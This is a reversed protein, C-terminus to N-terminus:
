SAALMETRVLAVMQGLTDRLIEVFKDRDGATVAPKLQENVMIRKGYPGSGYSLFLPVGGAVMKGTLNLFEDDFRMPIQGGVFVIRLGGKEYGPVTGMEPVLLIKSRDPRMGDSLAMLRWGCLWHRCTHPRSEYISCKANLTLHPCPVDDDKQLEPDDIKLEVCCVSCGGCERGPIPPPLTPM